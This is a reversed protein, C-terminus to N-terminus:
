WFSPDDTPLYLGSLLEEVSVRDRISVFRSKGGMTHMVPPAAAGIKDVLDRAEPSIGGGRKLTADLKSLARSLEKELVIDDTPPKIQALAKRIRDESISNINPLPRPPM